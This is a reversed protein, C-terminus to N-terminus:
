ASTNAYLSRCKMVSMLTWVPCLVPACDSAQLVFAGRCFHPFLFTKEHCAHYHYIWSVIQAVCFSLKTGVPGNPTSVCHQDCQLASPSSCNRQTCGAGEDSSDACNTFGNCVLGTEVCEGSGCQYLHSPCKRQSGSVATPFFFDMTILRHTFCWM